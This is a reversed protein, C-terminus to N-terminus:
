DESSCPRPSSESAPAFSVYLGTACAAVLSTGAAAAHLVAADVRPAGPQRRSPHRVMAGVHAGFCALGGFQRLFGGVFRALGGFLRLLGGGVGPLSRVLCLLGGLSASDPFRAGPDKQTARAVIADFAARARGATGM